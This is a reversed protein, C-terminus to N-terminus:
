AASTDVIRTPIVGAIVALALGAVAVAGIQIIFSINVSGRYVNMISVLSPDIGRDNSIQIAVDREFGAKSFEDTITADFDLPLHITASSVAGLARAESWIAVSEALIVNM